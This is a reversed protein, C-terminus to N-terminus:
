AALHPSGLAALLAQHESRLYVASRRRDRVAAVTTMWDADSRDSSTGVVRVPELSTLLSIATLAAVEDADAPDAVLLLDAGSEVEADVAAAGAAVADIMSEPGGPLAITRVGVGAVDALGSSLAPAEAGTSVYLLRPRAPTRPPVLTQVGALWAGLEALRGLGAGSLQERVSREADSDPWGIDTTLNVVPDLDAPQPSGAAESM